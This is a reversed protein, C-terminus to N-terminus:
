FAINTKLLNFSNYYLFDDFKIENELKKFRFDVKVFPFNDQHESYFSFSCNLMLM